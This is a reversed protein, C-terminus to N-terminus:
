LGPPGQGVKTRPEPLTCAKNPARPPTRTGAHWVGDWAQPRSAASAVLSAAESLLAATALLKTKHYNPATKLEQGGAM